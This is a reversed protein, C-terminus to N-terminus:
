PNSALHKIPESQTPFWANEICTVAPNLKYLGRGQTRRAAGPGRKRIDDEDEDLVEEGAESEGLRLVKELPGVQTEKTSYQLQAKNYRYLNCKFAFNSVPDDSYLTM